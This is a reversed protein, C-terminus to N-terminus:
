GAELLRRLFLPAYARVEWSTEVRALARRFQAAHYLMAVRGALSFVEELRRPTWGALPGRRAWPELYAARLRADADPIRALADTYDLSLALLAPSFFPHAIAADEWDIVVNGDEAAIINAAWLDGHELSPPVGQAALDRCLAELEPRRRRLQAVEEDGLRDALPPQLLAADDLLPGVDAELGSLSQQPCGLAALEAVGDLWDIQMEAISAAAATWRALEDVEMLDRGATARMLLWGRDADVAVVDPASRPHREALRRTLRAEHAGWAPRAKFYFRGGATDLALVQSFEWVRVQEVSSVPPWGRSALQGAVWGLAEDRWGPRAWAPAGRAAAAESAHRMWAEVRPWSEADAGLAARARDAPMWRAPAGAGGHAELVHLHRRPAGGAGPADALCQLVSADLGFAARVARNLDAVDASRREPLDARPLAWGREDAALLVDLGGDRRRVIALRHESRGPLSEGPSSEMTHRAAMTARAGARM